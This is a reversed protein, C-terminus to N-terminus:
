VTMIRSTLFKLVRRPKTVILMTEVPKEAQALLDQWHREQHFVSIERRSLTLYVLVSERFAIRNARVFVLPLVLNDRILANLLQM